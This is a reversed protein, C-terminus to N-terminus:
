AAAILASFSAALRQGMVMEMMNAVTIFESSVVM